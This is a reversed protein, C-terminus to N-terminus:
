VGHHIIRGEPATFNENDQIIWIIDCGTVENQSPFWGDTFILTVEPKNEKVWNLAPNIDTCGGGKFEIKKIDNLDTIIEPGYLETDFQLMLIKDPNLQEKVMHLGRLFMGVEADTISGSVDFIFALDCLAENYLRPMYFQPMYRRNPRRYSYDEQKYQSMYNALISIFDLRPNQAEKILRTLHGPIDGWNLHKAAQTTMAAKIVVKNIHDKLEADDRDGEAGTGPSYIIDPLQLPRPNATYEDHLIRYVEVCSMNIFRDDALGGAPLEYGADLLMLNIVHDCAENFLRHELPESFVKKNVLKFMLMHGFIVHLMEHAVLGIAEDETLDMFFQPNIFFRRGDVGATSCQEDWITRMSFLVNAYYYTEASKARLLKFKIKELYKTHM